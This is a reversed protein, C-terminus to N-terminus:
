NRKGEQRILRRRKRSSYSIDYVSCFDLGDMVALQRPHIRLSRVKIRRPGGPRKSSM